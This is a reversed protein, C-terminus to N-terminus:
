REAEWLGCGGGELEGAEPRPAERPLLEAIRGRGPVSVPDAPQPVRCGGQTKASIRRITGKELVLKAGLNAGLKGLKEKYEEVLPMLKGPLRHKLEPLPVTEFKAM